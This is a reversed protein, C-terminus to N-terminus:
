RRTSTLSGARAFGAVFAEEIRDARGPAQLLRERPGNVRGDQGLPWIYVHFPYDDTVVSYSSVVHIRYGHYGDEMVNRPGTEVQRQAMSRSRRRTAPIPLIVGAPASPPATSALVTRQSVFRSEANIISLIPSGPTAPVALLSSVDRQRPKPSGSRHQTGSPSSKLTPRARTRTSRGTWPVWSQGYRLLRMAAAIRLGAPRQDSVAASSGSTTSRAIDASQRQTTTIQLTM